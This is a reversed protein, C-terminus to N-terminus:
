RATVTTSKIRQFRDAFQATWAARLALLAEDDPQTAPLQPAAGFERMGADPLGAAILAAWAQQLAIHNPGTTAANVLATLLRGQAVAVQPDLRLGYDTQFPNSPVALKNAYKEYVTPLIAHHYLTPGHPARHEFQVAWLAQGDESLVYRVFDRALEVDGSITLVSILDPTAATAGPPDLYALDGGSEAALSMGDFNVALTALSVGSAVQRLADGSRANLARANGLIRMVIPWGREWGDHAIVLALSERHSGSAQPDALAIWGYFRPDALDAWTAPPAIGRAECARRNYLVGFTSLGTAFWRGQPDRTPLGNVEAPIAASVDALETPRSLGQTALEQHEMIGGGFIVDPLEVRAGQAQMEPAAAIYALCQPTGRYIWEIHVPANRQARYWSSFGATFAERIDESHPTVVRLRKIEALTPATQPPQEKRCGNVAVCAFITLLILRVCRM